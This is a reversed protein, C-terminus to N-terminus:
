TKTAVVIKSYNAYVIKCGKSLLISLSVINRHFNKMVRVDQLVVVANGEETVIALDGKYQATVKSKNAVVVKSSNIKVNRMGVTTRSCHINAGSDLMLNDEHAGKDRSNNKNLLSMVVYTTVNERKQRENVMMDTMDKPIDNSQVREDMSQVTSEDSDYEM